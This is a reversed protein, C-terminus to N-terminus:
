GDVRPGECAVRVAPRRRLRAVLGAPLRVGNVLLVSALILALGALMGRTVQEDLFLAGWAMGFIPVLYTVTNARLPGVRAVLHFYLVYAVATSLAALGLVAWVVGTPIPGRPLQTAAPVVLWTAAAVQQGFALTTTPVDALRRRTYLAAGAYSLTALVMAGVSLLTGRTLPVPSWGVLVAVGVLGLLLGLARRPPVAERLWVAGVLATFLPVMANLVSAMAATLRLEAASILTFPLAANFAGLVLLRGVHERRIVPRRGVAALALWLLLGGLVVRVAVLPLPGLAPVAIRIFLFSGGWVAALALLAALERITM